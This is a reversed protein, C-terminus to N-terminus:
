VQEQWMMGVPKVESVWVLQVEAGRFKAYGMREAQLAGKGM